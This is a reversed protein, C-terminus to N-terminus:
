KLVVFDLLEENRKVRKAISSTWGLVLMLDDSIFNLRCTKMLSLQGSFSM